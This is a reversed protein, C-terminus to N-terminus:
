NRCRRIPASDDLSRVLRPHLRILPRRPLISGAEAGTRNDGPLTMIRNVFHPERLGNGVGAHYCTFRRSTHASAFHWAAKASPSGPRPERSRGSPDTRRTPAGTGRPNEPACGRARIDAVIESQRDVVRRAQAAIAPIRRQERQGLILAARVRGVVGPASGGVQADPLFHVAVRLLQDGIVGVNGPLRGLAGDPHVATRMRRGVGRVGPLSKGGAFPVAVYRVM